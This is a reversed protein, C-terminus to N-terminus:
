KELLSSAPIIMGICEGFGIGYDQNWSGGVFKVQDGDELFTRNAAGDQPLQIPEKGNWSLELLSGM